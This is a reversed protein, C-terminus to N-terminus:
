KTIEVDELLQEFIKLLADQEEEEEVIRYLSERDGEGATDRLILCEGDGEESDTVLLYDKGGVRTQELIFFEVPEGNEDQFILKEM